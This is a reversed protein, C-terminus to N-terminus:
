VRLGEKRDRKQREHRIQRVILFLLFGLWGVWGAFAGALLGICMFGLIKLAIKLDPSM